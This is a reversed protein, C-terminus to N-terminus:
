EVARIGIGVTNGTNRGNGTYMCCQERNRGNGTYM